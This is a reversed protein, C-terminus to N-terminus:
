FYFYVKNVGGKGMQSEGSVVLRLGILQFCDIHTNNVTQLKSCALAPKASTKLTATMKKSEFTSHQVEVQLCVLTWEL